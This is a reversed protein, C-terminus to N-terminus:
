AAQPTPSTGELLLIPMAAPGWLAERARGASELRCSEFGSRGELLARGGRAGVRYAMRAGRHALLSDLPWDSDALVQLGGDNGVLITVDSPTEGARVAAEATEFIKRANEFFISVCCEDARLAATQTPCVCPWARVGPAPRSVQGVKGRSRVESRM